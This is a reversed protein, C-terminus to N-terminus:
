KKEKLYFGYPDKMGDKFFKTRLVLKRGELEKRELWAQFFERVNDDRLTFYNIYVGDILIEPFIEEYCNKTEEDSFIKETLKLKRTLLQLKSLEM